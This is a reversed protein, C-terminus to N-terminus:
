SLLVIFILVLVDAPSYIWVAPFCVTVMKHYSDAAM